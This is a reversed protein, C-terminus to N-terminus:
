RQFAVIDRRDKEHFTMSPQIAKRRVVVIYFLFKSSYVATCMWFTGIEIFNAPTPLTPASFLFFNWESFFSNKSARVHHATSMHITSLLKSSKSM